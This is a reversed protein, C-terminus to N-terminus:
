PQAVGQTAAQVADIDAGRGQYASAATLHFDGGALNAFGVQSMSAPCATGSPYASCNGGTIVNNTFTWSAAFQTLAGTGEFGGDGYLGYSGGELINNQVTLRALKGNGQSLLFLATNRQAGAAPDVVATVNMITVDPLNGALQFMRGYGNGGTSGLNPAGAKEIVLNQIAFRAGLTPNTYGDYSAMDFGGPVNRILNNKWLVDQVTSWHCCQDDDASMMVVAFGPQADVWHNELINGEFLVRQAHKLEVINKVTWANSTKWALPKRLHNRRIEIDAPSVNTVYAGAGGFMINQGAGEIYNNVIKFPGPGAYGLIGQSDLGKAHCDALYSDIVATSASNIVICRVTTSTSTGHVYVRDIVIDKPIKALTPSPDYYDGLDILGYNEAIGGGAVTVELGVLRYGSVSAGAAIVPENNTAVLKAFGGALAPTVRTGPAPLTVDSRIHIATASSCGKAPLVFNGTFTAGSALVVESGCTAGNLAAQLNGGSAVTIRPGTPAVYTTTLFVRPGEPLTVGSPPPPTGVTVTVASTDARTGGQQVAIVRYATGATSGATYLGGTSITGGTASWTVLVASTSNDSMRGVASFQQTAGGAVTASGPSVEIASLTPPDVSAVESAGCGSAAIM